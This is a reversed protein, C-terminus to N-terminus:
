AEGGKGGAVWLDPREDKVLRYAANFDLSTDAAMKEHALALVQDRGPLAGRRAGKASPATKLKAPLANLAKLEAAFRKEHALRAEWTDREAATIRGDEVARDLIASRRAKREHELATEAAELADGAKKAEDQAKKAQAEADEKAKLAAAVAANVEEETATEPLGLLKAIAKIDMSPEEKQPQAPTGAPQDAGEGSHPLAMDDYDPDNTLGLSKLKTVTLRKKAADFIGGWYPSFHSFGEGPNDLWRVHFVAAEEGPTIEEIWGVAAKNPYKSGLPAPADPHGQYVPYGKFGKKGKRAALDAAMAEAGARDFTEGIEGVEPGMGLTKRTGYPVPIESPQQIGAPMEHAVSIVTQTNTRKM